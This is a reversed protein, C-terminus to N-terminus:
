EDGIGVNGSSREITLHKSAAEMSANLSAGNNVGVVHMKNSSGDYYLGMTVENPNSGVAETFAIGGTMSGESNQTGLRLIPGDTGSVGAVYMDLLCNPSPTGIGVNGSSDILANVTTGNAAIFKMEGSSSTGIFGKNVGETRFGILSDTASATTNDVTLVRVSAGPAGTVNLVGVQTTTGISLQGTSV